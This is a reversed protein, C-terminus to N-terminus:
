NPTTVANDLIDMVEFYADRLKANEAIAENNLKELALQELWEAYAKWHHKEARKDTQIEFLLRLEEVSKNM